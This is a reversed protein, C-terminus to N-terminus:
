RMPHVLMRTARAREAAMAAPAEDLFRGLERRMEADRGLRSLAEARALRAEPYRGRLALAEDAARLAGDPQDRALAVFAIAFCVEARRPAAERLAALEAAAQSWLGRAAAVTAHALRDDVAGGDAGIVVDLERTAGEFDGTRRLIEARERHAAPLRPDLDLARRAEPEAAAIRGERALLLANAAHADARDPAAACLKELEWRAGDLRGLRLLLEATLLRADGYGPDVALAVRAEGLADEEADRHILVNALNLHAEALEEDLALAARFREEARAWDGRRLAVLGLGNEAEALRPEYELALAFQGAARDLEGRALADVGAAQLALARPQMPRSATACGGALAAAALCSWVAVSNVSTTM